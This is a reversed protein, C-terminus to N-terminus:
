TMKGGFKDPSCFVGPTLDGAAALIRVFFALGSLLAAGGALENLLGACPFRRAAGAREAGVMM